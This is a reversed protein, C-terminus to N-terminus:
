GIVFLVVLLIVGTLRVMGSSLHRLVNLSTLSKHEADNVYSALKARYYLLLGLCATATALLLGFEFMRGAAMWRDYSRIGVVVDVIWIVMLSLCSVSKHFPALHNDQGFVKESLYSDVSIDAM